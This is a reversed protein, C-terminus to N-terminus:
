PSPLMWLSGTVDCAVASAQAGLGVVLAEAAALDHDAVVVAAGERHLRRATAAGIGHAAGSLLVVQDHFRM